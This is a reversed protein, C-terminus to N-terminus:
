GLKFKEVRWKRFYSSMDGMLPVQEELVEGRSWKPTKIRLVNEVDGYYLSTAWPYEM